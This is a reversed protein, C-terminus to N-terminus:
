VAREPQPDFTHGTSSNVPVHEIDVRYAPLDVGHRRAARIEFSLLATRLGSLIIDNEPSPAQCDLYKVRDILMRIIEQCNTGGYANQNFPYGPGERKMFTVEQGGGEDFTSLSYKHGPDLVRM